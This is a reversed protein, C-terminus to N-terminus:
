DLRVQYWQISGVDGDIELECVSKVLFSVAEEICQFRSLDPPLSTPWNELWDKLITELEQKSVFKEEEGPELLVYTDSSENVRRRRSGYVKIQQQQHKSSATPLSCLRSSAGLFCKSVNIISEGLKYDRKAARATKFSWYLKSNASLMTGNFSQLHKHLATEMQAKESAKNLSSSAASFFSM